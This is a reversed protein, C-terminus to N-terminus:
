VGGNIVARKITEEDDQREKTCDGDMKIKINKLTKIDPASLVM